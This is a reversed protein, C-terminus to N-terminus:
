EMDNVSVGNVHVEGDFVKIDFCCMGAMRNELDTRSIEGERAGRFSFGSRYFLEYDPYRTDILELIRKASIMDEKYELIGTRLKPPSALVSEVAMTSLTSNYGSYYFYFQIKREDVYLGKRLAYEKIVSSVEHVDKEWNGDPNGEYLVIGGLRVEVYENNTFSTHTVYDVKTKKSFDVLALKAKIDELNASTM